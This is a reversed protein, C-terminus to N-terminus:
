ENKKMSEKKIIYMISIIHIMKISIICDLEINIINKNKFQPIIIYKQIDTNNIKDKLIIGLGSAILTVIISTLFANETGIEVKLDLNKFETNIKEADNWVEKKLLLKNINIKSFDINKAYKKLNIKKIKKNNIEIKLINIYKLVYLMVKISYRKNAKVGKEDINVKINNLEIELRSFIFLIVIGISSFIIFFFL